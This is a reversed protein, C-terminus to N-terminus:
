INEPAAIYKTLFSKIESIHMTEKVATDRSRLHVLGSELTGSNIVVTFLVGMKDYRINLQETSLSTTEWYGPWTSINGQVLEQLLGECVQQLEMSARRGMDFAVKFPALSPHLKLVKRIHQKQRNSGEKVEQLSNHLYALVGLDINGNVTIVHPVVSKKGGTYQLTSLNGKHTQLLEKNGINYLTELPEAGWPFQYLLRIGRAVKNGKEEVETDSCSFNSPELAFKRWWQLRHRAWYDLWQSSTRPSCFWVLSAQMVESPYGPVAPPGEPLQYCLGTEALGFPLKKNVVKVFHVYQELAGQLLSTRMSVFDQPLKQLAEMYLKKENLIHSFVEADVLKLTRGQGVTGSKIGHPTSIGLVQPRSMVVSRWWQELINKRLEMGLPGYSPSSSHVFNDRNLQEDVTYYHDSFLKQLSSLHDAKDSASASDSCDRWHLTESRRRLKKSLCSQRRVCFMLM